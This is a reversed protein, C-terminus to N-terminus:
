RNKNLQCCHKGCIRRFLVTRYKFLRIARLDPRLWGACWELDLLALVNPRMKVLEMMDSHLTGHLYDAVATRMEECREQISDLGDDPIGYQWWPQSRRESYEKEMQAAIHLRVRVMTKTAGSHHATLLRYEIEKLRDLLQPFIKEWNTFSTGYPVANLQHILGDRAQWAESCLDRFRILNATFFTLLVGSVVPFLYDSVAKHGFVNSACEWLIQLM